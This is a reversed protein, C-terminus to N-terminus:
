HHTLPGPSARGSPRRVPRVHHPAVRGHHPVVRRHRVLVLGLAVVLVTAAVPAARHDPLVPRTLPHASAVAQSVSTVKISGVPSYRSVAGLVLSLAAILLAGYALGGLYPGLLSRRGGTDM